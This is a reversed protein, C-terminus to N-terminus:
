EEQQTFVVMRFLLLLGLYIDELSFSLSKFKFKGAFINWGVVISSTRVSKSLIM